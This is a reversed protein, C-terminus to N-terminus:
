LSTVSEWVTGTFVCLKHLTSDYVVLGEPPTSIANKQTTTVRPPLFGKTTSDLQLLAVANPGTTGIGVNGTSAQVTMRDTSNPAFTINETSANTLFALGNPSGISFFYARGNWQTGIGSNSACAFTVRRSDSFGFDMGAQEGSGTPNNANRVNVQLGGGTGDVHLVNSSYYFSASEGWTNTSTAYPIYTATASNPLKLTSWLPATTVGGSRLYSGVAVDALKALTNAASAYILDGVAYSSPPTTAAWLDLDADYAQVNTGIVLGLTTRVQAPTRSAWASSVSVIFNDTTATLGALTTLDSDLPQYTSAASAVSLFDADTCATNFQALTGTIGVIGTQDGTNTGSISATAGVTLTFGGTALTGNGTIVGVLSLATKQAAADSDALRALGFTSPTTGFIPSKTITGSTKAPDYKVVASVNLSGGSQVLDNKGLPTSIAGSMLNLTGGSVSVADNTLASLSLTTLFHTGSSCSVVPMAGGLDEFHDIDLHTTPSGGGLLLLPSDETNGTIKQITLWAELNNSGFQNRIQVVPGSSAISEVKDAKLYAKTAGSTGYISIGTGESGGVIYKAEIWARCVGTGGVSVADGNASSVEDANVWIFGSESSSTGVAYLGIGRVIIRQCSIFMPGREWYVGWDGTSLNTLIEQCEFITDGEKQFIAGSNASYMSRCNCRIVTSSNEIRFVQGGHNLLGSASGENSLKGFGGIKFSIASGADDFLATTLSTGTRKIEANSSLWWDIGNKALNSDVVEAISNLYIIDGSAAANKASILVTGRATDTDAAADYATSTGDKHVVVCTASPYAALTTRAAAADADDVLTRGFASFDALAATGSGTFYPLKNAASTLGGLASLEADLPQFGAAVYASVAQVSPYLTNNLTVFSTAKNAVNEPVYSYTAPILAWNGATQGPTDAIARISSGITVGVGGLTGAVSIFWLDGKLIAGSTGSGGSAPFTNVSADYSGRDDLLGVVLSDAYTHVFATTALKTSSDSSTLTPAAPTGTFTPSALNAKLDLATQQATSVPKGVDSTNDASGLGVQTKTVSHPNSTNGTHTALATSANSAVLADATAQATSVPKSSDAVNDVNGLGVDGKNLTVDDTKGAVSTVPPYNGVGM